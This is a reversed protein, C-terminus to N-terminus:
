RVCRASLETLHQFLCAPQEDWQCLDSCLGGCHSPALPPCSGHQLLSPESILTDLNIRRRFSLSIVGRTQTTTTTRLSPGSPRRWWDPRCSWMVKKSIGLFRFLPLVTHIWGPWQFNHWGEVNYKPDRHSQYLLSLSWCGKLSGTLTQVNSPSCSTDCIM